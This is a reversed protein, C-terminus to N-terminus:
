LSQDAPYELVRVLALDSAVLLHDLLDVSQFGCVAIQRILLQQGLCVVEPAAQGQSLREVIYQDFGKSCDPLSSLTSDPKAM